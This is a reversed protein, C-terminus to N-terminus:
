QSAGVVDRFLRLTEEAARDWTFLRARALGKEIYADRAAQDYLLTTIATAIDDPDHPDFLLAAGDAVEPIAAADAAAMPCGCAMAELGALGFGEYLSPYVFCDALNYIMPLDDNPVFYLFRIRDSLGMSEILQLEEQYKWRPRGAVVIDHPIDRAIKNFARLLNIFNKQPFLMGVFLIFKEPLLYEEM